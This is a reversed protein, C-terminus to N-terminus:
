TRAGTNQFDNLKTECVGTPSRGAPAEASLHTHIYIYMCIYM